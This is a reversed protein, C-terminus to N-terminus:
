LVLRLMAVLWLPMVVWVPLWIKLIAHIEGEGVALLREEEYLAAELDNYEADYGGVKNSLVGTDFVLGQPPSM